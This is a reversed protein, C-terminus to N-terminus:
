RPEPKTPANVTKVFVSGSGRKQWYQDRLLEFLPSGEVVQAEIQVVQNHTSLYRVSEDLLFKKTGDAAFDPHVRLEMLSAIWTGGYLALISEMDPYAVRMRLRAVPRNTSIQYVMADFWMGTSQICGEWWTKSEPIEHIEIALIGYNAASEPTIEPSFHRLDFHFWSTKQHVSYDASLFADIITQDAHLIGMAEGGGYFGTYFPASPSPSGGYITQAGLGSLYDEGAQILATAADSADPYKPDVCLFCIQGTTLDFSHGDSAPALTAHVYGVPTDDDFALMISRNDLMPQGLIQAQLQNHSPSHLPSFGDRRSQTKQWLELLRPPDENRFSRITLM